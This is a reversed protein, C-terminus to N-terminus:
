VPPDATGKSIRSKDSSHSDQITETAHGESINPAFQLVTPISHRMDETTSKSSAHPPRHNFMALLSNIYLRSLISHLAAFIFTKPWMAYVFLSFLECASTALGSIVVLRILGLLLDAMSPLRMAARSKHLYYCMMLAIILDATIVVSYFTYIAPSVISASVLKAMSYLDYSLFIGSGFSAVVALFAFWPVIKHFHRGLKWLRIAYVGQVFVITWVNVLSQLKLSWIINAELAGHLYGYMNILYYYLAHTGLVIDVTDLVWVLAVARRYFSWDNPYNKYYILVQLNMIGYSIAAIIAGVFLVGFTDGLSTRTLSPQSSM